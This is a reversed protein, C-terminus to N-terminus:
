AGGDLLLPEAAIIQRARNWEVATRAGVYIGGGIGAILSVGGLILLVYSTGYLLAGVGAMGLGLKMGGELDMEYVKDKLCASVITILMGMSMLTQGAALLMPAVAICGAGIGVAGISCMLPHRSATGGVAQLVRGAKVPMRSVVAEPLVCEDRALARGCRCCYHAMDWQEESMGAGCQECYRFFRNM